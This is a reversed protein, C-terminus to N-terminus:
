LEAGRGERGEKDQWVVWRISGASGMKLDGVNREENGDQCFTKNRCSVTVGRNLLGGTAYHSEERLEHCEKLNM